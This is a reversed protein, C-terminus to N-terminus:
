EAGEELPSEENVDAPDDEDTSLKSSEPMAGGATIEAYEALAKLAGNLNAVAQPMEQELLYQFSELRKALPGIKSDYDRSWLKIVRLKEMAEDLAGACKRVNQKLRNNDQAFTSLKASYLEAEAEKLRRERLKAQQIWHAKQDGQVWGRMRGVEEMAELISQRAKELFIILSSRFNEIAEISAVNASAAM